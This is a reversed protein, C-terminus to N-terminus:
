LIQYVTDGERVRGEVKLGISTGADASQITEHEIQMSDVNQSVHTNVGKILIRDGVSLKGSLDVVAVNIKSFFHTVVGVERYEDQDLYEWRV